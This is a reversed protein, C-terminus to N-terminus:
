IEYVRPPFCVAELQKIIEVLTDFTDLKEKLVKTIIYGSYDDVVILLYWYMTRFTILKMEVIDTHLQEM